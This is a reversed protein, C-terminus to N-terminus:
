VITKTLADTRCHGTKLSRKRPFFKHGRGTAGGVNGRGDLGDLVRRAVKKMMDAVMANWYV